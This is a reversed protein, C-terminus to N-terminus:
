KHEINLGQREGHKKAMVMEMKIIDSQALAKNLRKYNKKETKNKNNKNIKQKPKQKPMNDAAMYRIEITCRM